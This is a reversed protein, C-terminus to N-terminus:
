GGALPPLFSVVDGDKLVTDFGDLTKTSRGNIIIFFRSTNETKKYNAGLLINVVLEKVTIKPNVEIEPPTICFNTDIGGL